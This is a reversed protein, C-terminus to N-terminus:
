RNIVSGASGEDEKYFNGSTSTANTTSWHGASTDISEDSQDPYRGNSDTLPAKGSGGGGGGGGGPPLNAEEALDDKFGNWNPVSAQGGKKVGGVDKGSM